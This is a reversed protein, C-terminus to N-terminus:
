TPAAVPLSVTFTSGLGPGASRVTVRGGHAEVIGKTIFLGLGTGKDESRKVTAPDHVQSFPKFLRALQDPRMGAGTDRVDIRVDGDERAIAISISGGPPTFKLANGVLNYLVQTIRGPDAHVSLALPAEVTLQVQREAAQPALSESTLKALAVLDIDRREIRLGGGELRAVDGVDAVLRELHEVNRKLVALGTRGKEDVRAELLRLQLKV